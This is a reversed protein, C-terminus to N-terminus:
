WLPVGIRQIHDVLSSNDIRHMLVLDIKYPLMLDDLKTCLRLYHTHDLAPAEVAIDIDSGERYNGKARSGFIKGGKVETTNRLIEIIKNLDSDSLGFTNPTKM